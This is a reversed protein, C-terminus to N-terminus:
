PKGHQRRLEDHKKRQEAARKGEPTNEWRDEPLTGADFWEDRVEGQWSVFWKDCHFRTRRNFELVVKASLPRYGSVKDNHSLYLAYKPTLPMTVEIKEQALGPSRWFPPWKYADPNYWVTPSDSTIFHDTPPAVFIGMSMGFYTPALLPLSTAVLRPRASELMAAIEISTRPEANHAEEMRTVKEHVEQLFNVYTTSQPDVRSFMAAAFICLNAKDQSDLSYEKSIKHEVLTVFKGEIRALTDEVILEREGNPLRITYVDTSVFAKKPSRKRKEQGDKSVMWVYPTQNAPTNPDCWAKQYCKPIVHQRKRDM